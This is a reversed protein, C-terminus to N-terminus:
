IAEIHAFFRAPNTSKDQVVGVSLHPINWLAKYQHHREAFLDTISWNSVASCSSLNKSNNHKGRVDDATKEDEKTLDVLEVLHGASKPAPSQTSSMINSPLLNGARESLRDILIV